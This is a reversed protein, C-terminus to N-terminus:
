CPWRGSQNHVVKLLANHSEKLSWGLPYLHVSLRRTPKPADRRTGASHTRQHAGKAKSSRDKAKSLAALKTPIQQQVAAPKQVQNTTSILHIPLEPKLPQLSISEKRPPVKPPAESSAPPAPLKPPLTVSTGARLSQQSWCQCRCLPLRECRVPPHM